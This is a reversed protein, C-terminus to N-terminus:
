KRLRLANLIVSVSSCAMAASAVMPNLLLGFFPYFIGAAIPIGLFNYIFAFFLNQRINRMTQRSLTIAEIISNLDGKVLVVGASEMAVGSGTGMAIAVNAAALAPADNIGDGAMAVIQGKSRLERVIDIKDSPSAQAYVQDIQLDKAIAKAVKEHDGTVMVIRLGLKKLSKLAEATTKKIADAIAICGAIQNDISIFVITEAQEHGCSAFESVADNGSIGMSELLKQNGLILRRGEITGSVGGGSISLFDTIPSLQLNKEHAEKLIATALPHESSSELSAALRLLEMESVTDTSKLKTVVPKGTTLTGTKDLLITNVSELIQLAEGSRILIGREAGRGIGVMISIPTALGLACPCAVILVAIANILAHVYRPEPGVATWISFTLCATLLVTPVFYGSIVDALHQIPAQSRQADSVMYIIRALLTESGIRVAKMLFTGSTNLSGGNVFDNATKEVPLSEGSLLSDDVFSSGEIIVGDVPINEGPKVRLISNKQIQDLPVDIEKGDVLLHAHPPAQNLLSEIALSTRGKAKLELVQGLLALTTIVASTEFYMYLHDDVKFEGSFLAPVLVAATSYVYSAGIGLAILTFMNPTVNLVSQWARQFFISGAWFVVITSLFWQILPNYPISMQGMSLLVVPISLLAGILFNRLMTDYELDETKATIIIPELAMGCIPCIGRHEHRIKPHMPCTYLSAPPHPHKKLPPRPQHCCSPSNM